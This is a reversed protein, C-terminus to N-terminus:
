SPPRPQRARLLEGDRERLRKEPHESQMVAFHQAIASHLDPTALPTKMYFRALAGMVVHILLEDRPETPRRDSDRCYPAFEPLQDLLLDVAKERPIASPDHVLIAETNAPIAACASGDQGSKLSTKTGACRPSSRRATPRMGKRARSSRRGGHLGSRPTVGPTTTLDVDVVTRRLRHLPRAGNVTYEVGPAAQGHAPRRGQWVDDLLEGLRLVLGIPEAALLRAMLDIVSSIFTEAVKRQTCRVDAPADDTSM